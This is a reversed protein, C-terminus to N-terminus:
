ERMGGIEATPGLALLRRTTDAIMTGGHRTCDTRDTHASFRKGTSTRVVIGGNINAADWKLCGAALRSLHDFGWLLQGPLMAVSGATEDM